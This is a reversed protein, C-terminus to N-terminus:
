EARLSDVPNMLAARVAQFSVTVVAIVLAGAATVVFVAPNISTHYYYGDLWNQLFYLAIPSAIFCSVMVLLVFDKTVLFFVERISAGLAKRIGIERTRQEAVYAALGFLGLCSIFIALAAFIGALKGILSEMAFKAAYSEDVFHYQFPVGPRYKDFVLRLKDLAIHPDIGPSLRYTEVFLWGQHVFIMPEVPAFPANTLADNVVGIIHLKHPLTPHAWTITQNVPEKMGMRRIAAENFIACVTDSRSTDGEFNRGAKFTMGLTKFYDTDAIANLAVRLPVDSAPGGTWQQIDQYLNVETPPTFSGTMSTILGSRLAANKLATYHEPYGETVVLREANYGRPRNRAYELQQYIVITGIIFAISTSFQLVVLIQRGLAASKGMRWKGKLVNVPQFSSLYFAPRSGALCGTFLIYSLMLLWFFPSAYPINIDTGAMANFAPLLLQVIGLALLLAGFALVISEILFQIILASRSSGVVKKIGVEVARKESRATALNMFNICAIVLVFVGIIGFIRVYEILGGAAVGNKYESFLHWDKLPQLIPQKGFDQYIAPAYTKVLMSIKPEVQAFDVHPKLSVYVKFSEQNWDKRTMAEKIWWYTAEGIFPTLFDFKFSSNAPLDKLIGTVKLAVGNNYRVAKGMPDENGFLAKATSESLVISKPDSLVEDAAGKLLPFKFIKLFDAGASLGTPGLEKEGVALVQSLPGFTASSFTLAVNEIGPVDRKLAEALPIPLEEQTNLEGKSGYNYKVQYAQEYGPLFRDYSYQYNVWLGILLAVAMGIALGVVNLGSFMRNRGISRWATKLCIKLM